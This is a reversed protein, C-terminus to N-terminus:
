MIIDIWTSTVWYINHGTITAVNDTISGPKWKRFDNSKEAELQM